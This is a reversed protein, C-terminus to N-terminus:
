GATASQASSLAASTESWGQHSRMMSVPAPGRDAHGRNSHVHEPAHEGNRLGCRTAPGMAETTAQPSCRATPDVAFRGTSKSRRKVSATTTISSPRPVASIPRCRNPSAPRWTPPERFVPDTSLTDPTGSAGYCATQLVKQPAEALENADFKAKTARYKLNPTLSASRGALVVGVDTSGRLKIAVRRVIVWRNANHGGRVRHDAESHDRHRVGPKRLPTGASVLRLLGIRNWRLRSAGWAEPGAVAQV